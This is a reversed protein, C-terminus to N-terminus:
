PTLSFAHGIEHSLLEDGSNRGMVIQAGFNSWGSGTGGNVTDVWYINLRNPIFGIDDRLPKWVSDGVDGNPFAYHAPAQPDATADVIAFPGFEVGMREAHWIASTSICAEIAHLRQQDFPGKVIWVTVPIRILPAFIVDFTDRQPTWPTAVRKPPRDNTFGVIENSLSSSRYNTTAFETLSTVVSSDNVFGSSSEADILLGVSNGGANQIRITDCGTTIAFVFLLGGMRVYRLLRTSVVKM